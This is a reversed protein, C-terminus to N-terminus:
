VLRTVTYEFCKNVFSGRSTEEATSLKRDQVKELMTFLINYVGEIM